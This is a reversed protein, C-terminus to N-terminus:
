RRSTTGRSGSRRLVVACTANSRLASVEEHAGSLAAVLPHEAAIEAGPATVYVEAEVDGLGRAWDLAQRRAEAMPVDPCVSTSSSIRPTRRARPAGASAARSPASTRSVKVDGYSMEEEWTPLWDLARDLVSRMKVISNEDLRGSSFATHVFPGRVTLRLWLAGFHALVLKNETPEGLVCM